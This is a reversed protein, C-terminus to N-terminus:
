YTFSSGYGDCHHSFSKENYSGKKFKQSNNRNKICFYLLCERLSKRNKKVQQM